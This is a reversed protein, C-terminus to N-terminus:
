PAPPTQNGRPGSIVAFGQRESRTNFTDVRGTKENVASYGTLNGHLDFQDVRGTAGNVISYGTRRGKADFQDVRLDGTPPSYWADGAYAIAPMLLLAAVIIAKM